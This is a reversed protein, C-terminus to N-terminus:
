ESTQRSTDGFKDLLTMEEMPVPFLSFISLCPSLSRRPQTLSLSVKNLIPGTKFSIVVAGLCQVQCHVRDFWNGSSM